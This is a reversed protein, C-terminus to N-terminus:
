IDFGSQTVLKLDTEIHVEASFDITCYLLSGMLFNWVTHIMSKNQEEYSASTYKLVM